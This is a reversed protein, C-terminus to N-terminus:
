SRPAPFLKSDYFLESSRIQGNSLEFVECMPVDASAPARMRWLFTHAVLEGDVIFRSGEANADFDMGLIGEVFADPDDFAMLPGRFTFDSALVSRLAHRDKRAAADYYRGVIEMPSKM